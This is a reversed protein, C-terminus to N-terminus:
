QVVIDLLSRVRIHSMGLPATALRNYRDVIWCRLGCNQAFMGDSWPDDGVMVTNDPQISPDAAQIHAWFDPHPKLPVGPFLAPTYVASLYPQIGLVEVSRHTLRNNSLLVIHKGAQRLKELFPLADDFLIPRYNAIVDKLFPEELHQPWGMTEFLEHVILQPSLDRAAKEQAAMVAINLRDQDSSLQHEEILKPFATEFAWSISAQALTEDFDVLWYQTM